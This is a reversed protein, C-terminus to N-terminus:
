YDAEEDDADGEAIEDADAADGDALADVVDPIVTVDAAPVAGDAPELPLPEGELGDLEVSTDVM